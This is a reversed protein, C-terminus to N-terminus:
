LRQQEKLAIKERAGVVQKEKYAIIAMKCEKELHCSDKKCAEQHIYAYDEAVLVHQAFTATDNFKFIAL